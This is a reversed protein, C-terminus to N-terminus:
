SLLTLFYHEFFNPSVRPDACKALQTERLLSPFSRYPWKRVLHRLARRRNESVGIWGPKTTICFCATRFNAWLLTRSGCVVLASSGALWIEQWIWLREFWSRKFLSSVAALERSNFPLRQHHDAWHRELQDELAAKMSWRSWNVEIKPGLCELLSLALSSEDAEPGLWVLVRCSLTYINAMRKVQSSREPNDQQNICIADIWLVRPKTEYRLHLLADYLNQTVNLAQLGSDTVIGVEGRNESSGWAYSLAEFEPVNETTLQVLELTIQIQSDEQAVLNSPLLTLLRIQHSQEHLPTYCYPTAM